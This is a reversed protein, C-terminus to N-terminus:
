SRKVFQLSYLDADCLAFHLRVPRGALAGVNPGQRWLVTRELEDGVIEYCDNLSFGDMPEGSAERIEVKVSGAASSAVNLTLTDGQFTLPKTTVTAGARPGHLSVFGDIRMSYRRLRKSKGRWAGEEALFSIEPPAGSLSSPTEFMGRCQYNDGYAWNGQLQPGPPIFAEGWRKFTRGDRSTMFLGETLATGYRENVAARRRRHELEPLQEIAPGWSREVYRTPFGVYIHPARYYPQVQNTYLQEHPADGYDLWVADTWHVFDPSTATKIDRMGRGGDYKHFDRIYIRYEGRVTDWFALNQSDFAGHVDQYM